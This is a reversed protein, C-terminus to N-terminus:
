AALGAGQKREVFSNARLTALLFATVCSHAIGREHVRALRFARGGSARTAVGDATQPDGPSCRPAMATRSACGMPPKPCRLTRFLFMARVRASDLDPLDQTIRDLTAHASDGPRIRFFEITFQV